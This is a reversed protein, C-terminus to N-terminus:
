SDKISAEESDRNKGMKRTQADSGEIELTKYQPIMIICIDKSLTCSQSLYKFLSKKVFICLRSGANQFKVLFYVVVFFCLNCLVFLDLHISSLLFMELFPPWIKICNYQKGLIHLEIM